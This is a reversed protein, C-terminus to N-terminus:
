DIVTESDQMIGPVLMGDIVQLLGGYGYRFWRTIDPLTVKSQKM